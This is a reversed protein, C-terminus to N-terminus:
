AAKNFDAHVTAALGGDMAQATAPSLGTASPAPTLKANLADLLIQAQERTQAEPTEWRGQGAIVIVGRYGEKYPEVENRAKILGVDCTGRM